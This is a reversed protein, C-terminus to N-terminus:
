LGAGPLFCRIYITGDQKRWDVLWVRVVGLKNPTIVTYDPVEVKKGDFVVYYHGDEIGWDNPEFGDAADCCPVGHHNELSTVYEQQAPTLRESLRDKDVAKLSAASSILLLATSFVLSKIM